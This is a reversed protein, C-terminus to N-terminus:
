ANRATTLGAIGLAGLGLAGVAGLWALALVIAAASGIAGVVGRAAAPGRRPTDRPDDSAARDAHLIARTSLCAAGLGSALAVAALLAFTTVSPTSTPALRMVTSSPDAVPPPAAIAITTAAMVAIAISVVYVAAVVLTMALVRAAHSHGLSSALWSAQRRVEVLPLLVGAWGPVLVISLACTAVVAAHEGSAANNRIMLGGLLGALVAIGTGRVLADSARRLLARAYIATLAGIGSSWRPARHRRPRPRWLAVAGVVITWGAVVVIGRAHEGVLWLLLWPLQFGVLAALTLLRPTLSPAPLSDLYAAGDPRLLMRATPLSLLLWTIALIAAVGPAHLALGTLDRPQMANGGFIVAGAIASGAWVAGARRYAPAIVARKWVQLWTM